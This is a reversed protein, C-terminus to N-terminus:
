DCCCCCCCCECCCCCCECCGCDDMDRGYRGGAHGYKSQGPQKFKGSMAPGKAASQGAKAPAKAAAHGVKVPAKAAAPPTAVAKGTKVVTKKDAKHVAGKGAAEATGGLALMSVIAMVLVVLGLKKTM